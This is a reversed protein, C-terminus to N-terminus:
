GIIKTALVLFVILGLVYAGFQALSFCRTAPRFVDFTGAAQSGTLTGVVVYGALVSIIFLVESAIFWHLQTKDLGSATRDKMIGIFAAPAFLFASALTVLLKTQEIYTRISEKQGETAM